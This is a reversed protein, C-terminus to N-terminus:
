GVTSPEGPTESARPTKVTVTLSPLSLFASLGSVGTLGVSPLWETSSLDLLGSVGELGASM